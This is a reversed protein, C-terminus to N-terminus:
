KDLRLLKNEMDKRLMEAQANAFATVAKALEGSKNKLERKVALRVEHQIEERILDAVNADWGAEVDTLDIELKM